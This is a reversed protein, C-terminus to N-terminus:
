RRFYLNEFTLIKLVEVRATVLIACKEVRIRLFIHNHRFNLNGTISHLIYSCIIWFIVSEQVSQSLAWSFYVLHRYVILQIDLRDRSTRFNTGHIMFTRKVRIICWTVSFNQIKVFPHFPSELPIADGRMEEKPRIFIRSPVSNYPHKLAKTTYYGVTV